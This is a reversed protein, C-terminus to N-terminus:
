RKWRVDKKRTYICSFSPVNRNLWDRVEPEILPCYDILLTGLTVADENTAREKVLRVIPSSTLSACSTLDLKELLPCPPGLVSNPPRTALFEVVENVNPIDEIVITRLQPSARLLSTLQLDSAFCRSIKLDTLTTTPHRILFDALQDGIGKLGSLSLNVLSPMTARCFLTLLWHSSRLDLQQLSPLELAIEALQSPTIDMLPHGVISMSFATLNPNESITHIIDSVNFQASAHFSLTRCDSLIRRVGDFHLHEGRIDLNRTRTKHLLELLNRASGADSIRLQNLQSIKDGIPAVIDAIDVQTDLTRLTEWRFGRFSQRLNPDSLCGEVFKLDLIQGGSRQIWLKAKKAPRKKTLVLTSWLSPSALAVSRWANCVGIVTLVLTHDSDIILSFIEHSIEVPINGFHYSTRSIHRKIAAAFDIVEQKLALLTEKRATDGPKVRELAYDVMKNAREPKKMRLFLRACRAYGQWQHPAFDIVRRADELAAKLDGLKEHVAARSDFLQSVSGGKTVSQLAV